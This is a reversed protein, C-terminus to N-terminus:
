SHGFRRVAESYGPISDALADLSVADPPLCARVTFRVYIDGVRRRTDAVRRRTDAVRGSVLLHVREDLAQLILNAVESLLNRNPLFFCAALIV